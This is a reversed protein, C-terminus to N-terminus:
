SWPRPRRHHRCPRRHHEQRPDLRPERGCIGQGGVRGADVLDLTAVDTLTVHYPLSMRVAASPWMALFPPEEQGVASLAVRIMEGPWIRQGTVSGRAFLGIVRM